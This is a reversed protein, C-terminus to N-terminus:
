KVKVSTIITAKSPLIRNIVEESHKSAEQLETNESLSSSLHKLYKQAQNKWTNQDCAYIQLVNYTDTRKKDKGTTRTLVWSDAVKEFGSFKSQSAISTLKEKTDSDSLIKGGFQADIGANLNRAIQTMYNDDAAQKTLKLEDPDNTRERRSEIVFFYKDKLKKQMNKPLNDLDNSLAPGIWEPVENNSTKGEWNVFNYKKSYDVTSQNSSACSAFLVAASAVLAAVKSFKM